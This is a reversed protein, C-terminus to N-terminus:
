ESRLSKTPNTMAAKLSQGGVAVLAILMVLIGAMGFMWWEMKTQYAFDSLWKRILYFALPVAIAFAVAIMTLYEKTFLFVIEASTSGLVKRIGIEKTRLESMYASLAFLGLGAILIAFGSFWILVKQMNTEELYMQGLDDDLFTYLVKSDPSVEEITKKVYAIGEQTRGAQLRVLMTGVWYPRYEIVIPEIAFHLSAYNYDKVVGVIRGASGTWGNKALKGVPDKLNLLKAASENILFTSTSDNVPDAMPDFNRGEVLTLNMTPVFGEDARIFRETPLQEAQASDIGDPVLQEVSLNNGLFSSVNAVSKIMSSKQLETRLTERNIVAEEWLKGYLRINMVNEKDFGLDRTSMYDMQRYVTITSIIMFISIIFQFLVLRKRLRLLASTPLRLGKLANIPRLGAIYLAPIGTAMLFIVMGIGSFMVLNTLAFLDAPVLSLGAVLNYFPILANCLAFSSLVSVAIVIFGETMFQFLIEKKRAGIVKRLGVEKSRKLLQTVFLNIFNVSAMVIILIAMAGFLYVYSIDSNLSLEQEKHSHLHISRIPYFEFFDDGNDVQEKTYLGDFFKYQFGRMRSRFESINHDVPMLVFTFCSMWGKSERADSSLNNLRTPLSILYEFKLHTNQPLDQMVGTVEMDDTGGLKVVKGVPNMGPFMKQSLSETLIITNPRALSGRVDGHVFQIDFIDLIEQDALFGPGVPIHTEEHIMVENERWQGIRGVEEIAPFYSKLNEALPLSSKAWSTSNVRYIRGANTFGSEYNLEQHNHIFMMLSVSIGLVLGAINIVSYTRNIYLNRLSVQLYHRIM